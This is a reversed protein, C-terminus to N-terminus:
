TSIFSLEPRIRVLDRYILRQAEPLNADARYHGFLWQKFSLRQRISQFYVHMADPKVETGFETSIWQSAAGGFTFIRKGELEFVQGRM